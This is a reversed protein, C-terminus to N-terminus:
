GSSDYADVVQLDNLIGVLYCKNLLGHYGADDVDVGVIFCM